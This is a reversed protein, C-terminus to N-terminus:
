REEDGLQRRLSTRARLLLQKTATETTGLVSAATAISMDCGYHLWLATRQRAPLRGMATALAPDLGTEAPWAAGRSEWFAPLTVWRRRHRRARRHVIALFWPAFDGRLQHRHRWASVAAEQVADAADEVSCGAARALRLAAPAARTLEGAFRDAEGAEGADATPLLAMAADIM